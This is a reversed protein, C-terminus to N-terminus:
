INSRRFREQIHNPPNIGWGYEIVEGYKTLSIKNRKDTALMLFISIQLKNLRLYYWAPKGQDQGRILYVSELNNKNVLELYTQAM